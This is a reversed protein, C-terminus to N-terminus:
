DLGRQEVWLQHLIDELREKVLKAPVGIVGRESPDELLTSEPLAKVIALLEEAIDILDCLRYCSSSM